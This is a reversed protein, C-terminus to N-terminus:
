PGWINGSQGTRHEHFGTRYEHFHPGSTEAALTRVRTTGYSFHM